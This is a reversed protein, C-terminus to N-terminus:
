TVTVNWSIQAGEGQEDIVQAVFSCNGPTEYALRYSKECSPGHVSYGGSGSGWSKEFIWRVEKLNADEDEAEIRFTIPEGISLRVNDVAPYLKGITPPHNEEITEAEQGEEMGVPSGLDELAWAAHTKVLSDRDELAQRLPDVARADGIEGLAAAAMWRVDGDRDELAQVLPDVARADGIRGLAYAARARAESDKDELALILPEVAKPNGLDGLSGAAAARIKFDEYELAGLLPDVARTDNIEGLASAAQARIDSDEKDDELAQVLPDVASPDGIWGLADLADWRVGSHKDKFSQILPAAARKDRMIGLAQAAETRVYLDEDKLAEILPDVAVSDNIDGLAIAANARVTSNNYRLAQVLYDVSQPGDSEHLSKVAEERLADDDSKLIEIYRDLRGPTTEEPGGAPLELRKNGFDKGSDSSSSLNILHQGEAPATQTWGPQQAESVFYIGPKLNLFQYSGDTATTVDQLLNGESDELRIHWGQLGMEGIDRVRSGNSDNFKTGSISLGAAGPEARGPDLSLNVSIPNFDNGDLRCYRCTYYNTVVNSWNLEFSQVQNQYGERIATVNYVGGSDVGYELLFYYSGSSDTQTEYRIDPHPPYPSPPGDVYIKAGAVPQGSSSDNVRGTVNCPFPVLRFDRNDRYLNGNIDFAPLEARDGNLGCSPMYGFAMACIQYIGPPVQLFYSGDSNIRALSSNENTSYVGTPGEISTARVEVGAIPANLVAELVTGSINVCRIARAADVKGYGYEQDWGSPGLDVASQILVKVIQDNNLHYRPNTAYSELPWREARSKVLAAAGAVHPAGMSTGSMNDCGDFPVISHIDVGPAVLDLETGWQSFPARSSDRDTAGVSIVWPHAAPYNIGGQYWSEEADNGSAAVLISGLNSAYLTADKIFESSNNSGLSMSIVDAEHDAADMIGRSVGWFTGTQFIGLVREAMLSCDPAIGAIKQGNDMVATAIGACHTGHNEIVSVPSPDDDLDVWDHGYKYKEKGDKFRALDQHDYQIGTDVIAISINKDGTEIDWASPNPLGGARIDRQDWQLPYCPDNPVYSAYVLGNQEVYKVLASSRVNGLFSEIDEERSIYVLLAKPGDKYDAREVITGNNREILDILDSTIEKVGVIYESPILDFTENADGNGAGGPVIAAITYDGDAATTASAAEAGSVIEVKAGEIPAATSRDTVRGSIEIRGLNESNELDKEQSSYGLKSAKLTVTKGSINTGEVPGAHKVLKYYVKVEIKVDAIQDDFGAGIELFGRPIIMGDDLWECYFGKEHITGRTVNSFTLVKNETGNGGPSGEKVGGLHFRGSRGLGLGHSDLTGKGRATWNIYFDNSERVPVVAPFDVDISVEASAFGGKFDFRDKGEFHSQSAPVEFFTRNEHNQFPTTTVNFHDLILECHQEQDQAAQEALGCGCLVVCLILAAISSSVYSVSNKFAILSFFKQHVDTDKESKM